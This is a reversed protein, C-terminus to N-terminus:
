RCYVNAWRLNRPIIRKYGPLEKLDKPGMKEQEGFISKVVGYLLRSATQETALHVLSELVGLDEREQIEKRKLAYNRLVKGLRDAYATLEPDHIDEAM